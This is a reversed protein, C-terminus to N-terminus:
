DDECLDIIEATSNVRGASDTARASGSRDTTRTSADQDEVVGVDSLDGDEAAIDSECENKVEMKIEAKIATDRIAKQNELRPELGLDGLAARSRYKFIFTAILEGKKPRSFCFDTVHFSTTTLM